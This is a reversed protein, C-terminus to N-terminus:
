SWREESRLTPPEFGERRALWDRRPVAGARRGLAPERNRDERHARAARQQYAAPGPTPSPEEVDLVRAVGHPALPHGRPAAINM